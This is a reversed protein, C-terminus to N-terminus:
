HTLYSAVTMLSVRPVLVIPKFNVGQKKETFGSLIINEQAKTEWKNFHALHFLTYSIKLFALM